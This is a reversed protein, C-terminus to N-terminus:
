GGAIAGLVLLPDKGSTITDPLLTDAPYHSWDEECVFFRLFPRRQHTTHDRITGRLQPFNHELTDLVSALTVPASVELSLEHGALNALRRLHLPLEIRIHHVDSTTM